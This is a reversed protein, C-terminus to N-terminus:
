CMPTHEVRKLAFHTRFPRPPFQIRRAHPAFIRKACKKNCLKYIAILFIGIPLIYKIFGMVGSLIPSIKQGITGSQNYILVGLLISSIMMIIISINSNIKKKKRGRKAM